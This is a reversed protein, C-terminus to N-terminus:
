LVHSAVAPARLSLSAGSRRPVQMTSPFATTSAPAGSLGRSGSVGHAAAETKVRLGTRQQAQNPSAPAAVRREFNIRYHLTFFVPSYLASFARYGLTDPVTVVLEGTTMAVLAGHHRVFQCYGVIYVCLVVVLSGSSLSLHGPKM